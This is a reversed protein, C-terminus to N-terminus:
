VFNNPIINKDPFLDKFKRLCNEILVKLDQIAKTSIVPSYIVQALHILKTLVAYEQSDM